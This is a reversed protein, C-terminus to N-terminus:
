TPRGKTVARSRVQACAGSAVDLVDVDHVCRETSVFLGVVDRSFGSRCHTDANFAPERRGTRSSGPAERQM